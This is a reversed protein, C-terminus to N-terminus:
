LGAIDAVRVFVANTTSAIFGVSDYYLHIQDDIRHAVANTIFAHAGRNDLMPNTTGREWTLGDSSTAYGIDQLFGPRDTRRKSSLYVMVYGEDVAVVSPAMVRGGDWEEAPAPFLVPDSAAYIGGTDPDDHLTWTVADASVAMGIARDRETEIDDIHGDFYMRYEDGVRVVSPHTVGKANWTGEGGGTLTPEPDITWPGDPGPATARGIVVARSSFARPVVSFWISWTGDDLIMASTPYVGAESWEVETGDFLPQDNTFAWDRGDASTAVGVQGRTLNPRELAHGVYFMHLIGEHEVIPGPVIFNAAWDFTRAGFIPEEGGVFPTSPATTTTTTSSEDVVTGPDDSAGGADTRLSTTTLDVPPTATSGITSSSATDCAALLTAGVLVLVGIKLRTM